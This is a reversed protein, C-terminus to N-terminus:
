QPDAATPHRRRSFGPGFASRAGSETSSRTRIDTAPIEISAGNEAAAPSLIGGTEVRAIYSIADDSDPRYVQQVSKTGVVFM